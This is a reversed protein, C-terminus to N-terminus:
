IIRKVNKEIREKQLNITNNNFNIEMEMAKIENQCGGLKSENNKIEFEINGTLDNLRTLEDKPLSNEVNEM